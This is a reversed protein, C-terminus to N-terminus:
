TFCPQSPAWVNSSRFATKSYSDVARWPEPALQMLTKFYELYAPSFHKPRYFCFDGGKCGAYILFDEEEGRYASEVQSIAQRDLYRQDIIKGEPMSLIDAGNQVALYYPIHHNGELSKLAKSAYSFTRGTIFVLNWGNVQLKNLYAATVDPIPNLGIAVTGDIDLAIWGQDM